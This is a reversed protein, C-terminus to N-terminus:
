DHFEGIALYKYNPYSWSVPILDAHGVNESLVLLHKELVIYIPRILEYMLTTGDIDDPTSILDGVTTGDDYPESLVVGIVDQIDNGSNALICLSIEIISCFVYDTYTSYIDSDRVMVANLCINILQTNFIDRLFETDIVHTTSVDEPSLFGYPSLEINVYTTVPGVLKIAAM